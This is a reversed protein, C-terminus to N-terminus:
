LPDSGTQETWAGAPVGIFAEVTNDDDDFAWPPLCGRCGCVSCPHKTLYSEDETFIDRPDITVGLQQELAGVVRTVLLYTPQRNGKAVKCLGSLTVGADEALRTMGKVTYREAHLMIAALRNRLAAPRDPQSRDPFRIM